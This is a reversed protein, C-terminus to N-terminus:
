PTPQPEGRQTVPKLIEFHEANAMTQAETM